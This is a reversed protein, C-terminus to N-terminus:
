IHENLHVLAEGIHFLVHRVLCKLIFLIFGFGYDAGIKRNFANSIVVIVICMFKVGRELINLVWEILRNLESIESRLDIFYTFFLIM